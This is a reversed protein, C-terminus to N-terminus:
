ICLGAVVVGSKCATSVTMGLLAQLLPQLENITADSFDETANMIGDILCKIDYVIPGLTPGVIPLNYVVSTTSSLINKIANILNKLLTELDNTRDYNALGKDSPIQALTDKFGSLNTNFASLESAYQQQFDDNNDVNASQAALTDLANANQKTLDYYHYLDALEDVARAYRSRVSPRPQRLADPRGGTVQSISRNVSVLGLSYDAAVLPFPLPIPTATVSVTAFLIDLLAVAQLVLRLPRAYPSM